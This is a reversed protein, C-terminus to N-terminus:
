DSHPEVLFRSQASAGSGRRTFAIVAVAVLLLIWHIPGPYLPGVLWRDNSFGRLM